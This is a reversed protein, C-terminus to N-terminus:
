RATEPIATPILTLGNTAGGPDHGPETRAVYSETGNPWRVRARPSPASAATLLNGLTVTSAPGGARPKAEIVVTQDAEVAVIGIIDFTPTATPGAALPMDATVSSHDWAPALLRELHTAYLACVNGPCDLSEMRSDDIGLTKLGDLVRDPDPNVVLVKSITRRLREGLMGVTVLDTMPLSYGVLAIEDADRVAAGAQQWLERTVPNAYFPSKAAAPPVIFPSRDPLEQRRMEDSADVPRGWSVSPGWRNISVGTTDNPVWFSDVSGHLKLLQFTRGRVTGYSLGEQRVYPLKPGFRLISEASLLVNEQDWLNASGIAHEVLLDYNFTIVARTGSFHWAGVLRRLWWPLPEALVALEADIVVDRLLESIRLFLGRNEQNETLSLDPQSEALRSLWAEFGSGHYPRAAPKVGVARLRELVEDGLKDTLPMHGSIAKSFGAGLIAAHKVRYVQWVARVEDDAPCEYRPDSRCSMPLAVPGVAAVGAGTHTGCGPRRMGM